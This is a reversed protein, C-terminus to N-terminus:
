KSNHSIKKEKSFFLRCVSKLVLLTDPGYCGCSYSKLFGQPDRGSIACFPQRSHREHNLATTTPAQPGLWLCTVLSGSSTKQAQGQGQLCLGSVGGMGRAAQGATGRGSALATTLALAAGEQARSWLTQSRPPRPLPQPSQLSPPPLTPGPLTPQTGLGAPM